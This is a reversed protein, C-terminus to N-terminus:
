NVTGPLGFREFVGLRQREDLPREPLREYPTPEMPDMSRAIFATVDCVQGDRLSLVNVAFPLHAGAIEDWAYFALAPQANARTLIAKWRWSGSLSVERAWIAIAERPAYWTALPPMAFSADATLL